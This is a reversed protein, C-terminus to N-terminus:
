ELFVALIKDIFVLIGRPEGLVHVITNGIVVAITSDNFSNMACFDMRCADMLWALRCRNGISQMELHFAFRHHM